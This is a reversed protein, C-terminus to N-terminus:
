PPRAPVTIWIAGSLITLPYCLLGLFALAAVTLDLVPQPRLGARYHAQVVIQQLDLPM